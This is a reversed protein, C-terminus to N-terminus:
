IEFIYIKNMTCTKISFAHKVQKESLTYALNYNAFCTASMKRTKLCFNIMFNKQLKDNRNSIEIVLPMAYKQGPCM